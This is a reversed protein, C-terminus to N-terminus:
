PLPNEYPEEPPTQFALGNQNCDADECNGLAYWSVIRTGPTDEIFRQAASFTGFSRCTLASVNIGPARSCDECGGGSTNGGDRCYVQLEVYGNRQVYFEDINNNFTSGNPNGGPLDICSPNQANWNSRANANDTGTSSGMYWGQSYCLSGWDGTCPSSACTEGALFEGRGGTIIMLDDFEGDNCANPPLDDIFFTDSLGEYAAQLEEQTMSANPQTVTVQADVCQELTREAVFPM